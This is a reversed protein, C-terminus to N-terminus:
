WVTHLHRGHAPPGDIWSFHRRLHTQGHRPWPITNRDPQSREREPRRKVNRHHRKSSSRQVLQRHAERRASLAERHLALRRECNQDALSEVLTYTSCTLTSSRQSTKQSSLRARKARRGSARLLQTLSGRARAFSHKTSKSHNSM